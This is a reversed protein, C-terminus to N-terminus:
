YIRVLIGSISLKSLEEDRSSLTAVGQGKTADYWSENAKKKARSIYM